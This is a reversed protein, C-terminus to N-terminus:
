RFKEGTLREFVAMYTQTVKEVIDPELVPPSPFEKGTKRAEDLATKFGLKILHDRVIQKDFSDQAKGPAYRDKPWMRFEDPGISDALLINGKDDRGFEFKIDAVIFGANDGIEAVKRYLEMSTGRLWEYEEETLWRNKLIEDRTIPRDKAESKTTPDFLPEPLKAAMVPEVPVKVEGSNVRELLSGYLYGRVVCEIPIISLKKVVMRNPKVTEIMHNPVGLKRFFFEGIRCLVEGKGPIKTPLVIDFASVRDSFEFVLRGDGYDYIDKVKGKRTPAAKM